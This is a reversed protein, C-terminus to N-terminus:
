IIKHKTMFVLLSANAEKKTIWLAPYQKNPKQETYDSIAYLMDSIANIM